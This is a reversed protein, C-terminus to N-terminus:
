TATGIASLSVGYAVSGDPKTWKLWAMVQYAGAALGTLAVSDFTADDEGAVIAYNTTTHPDTNKIAAAVAAAIVWGTPATPNTFAVTLTGSGPTVTISTPSLGGKAGPSGLLTTLDTGARLGALNKAIFANRNTFKAGTAFTSWPAQFLAPAQKWVANLWSFVSRTSTQATSKPNSPIVWRRAYPIGRWSAYVQTKGITGGAGFGLLPATVKAM